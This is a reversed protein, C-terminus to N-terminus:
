KKAHLKDTTSCLFGSEWPWSLPRTMQRRPHLGTTASLAPMYAARLKLTFSTVLLWSAKPFDLPEEL